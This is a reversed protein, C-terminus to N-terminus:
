RKSVDDLEKLASAQPQSPTSAESPATLKLGIIGAMILAISLLRLWDKSENFLVIGAIAGGAAGIGTWIAYATGMPITRIALSVVFMSGILALVVIASPWFNRFGNSYKMAILWVIELVGGLFLYFWAM